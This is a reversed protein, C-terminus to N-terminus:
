GRGLALMPLTMTLGRAQRGEKPVQPAAMVAQMETV